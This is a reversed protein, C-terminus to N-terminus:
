LPLQSYNLKETIKPTWNSYTSNKIVIEQLNKEDVTSFLSTTTTM